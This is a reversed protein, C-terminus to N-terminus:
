LMVPAASVFLTTEPTACKGDVKFPGHIVLSGGRRLAAGAGACLGVTVVWPAIHLVNSTYLLEFCGPGASAGGEAAVSLDPWTDFPQSVDLELAPLVNDFRSLLSDLAQLTLVGERPRGPGEPDEHFGRVVTKGVAYESPRWRLKPFDAALIELHAGTGSGIELALGELDAPLLKRIGVSIPTRNRLASPHHDVGVTPGDDTERAARPGVSAGASSARTLPRAAASAPPTGLQPSIAAPASGSRGASALEAPEAGSVKVGARRKKKKPDKGMAAAVRTCLEQIEGDDPGSVRRFLDCTAPVRPVDIGCLTRPTVGAELQEAVATMMEIWCGRLYPDGIFVKAEDDTLAYTLSMGSAGARYNTPWIWWSWCSRKRGSRIEATADAHTRRYKETFKRLMEEHTQSDGM